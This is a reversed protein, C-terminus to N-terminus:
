RLSIERFTQYIIIINNYGCYYYILAFNRNINSKRTHVKCKGSTLKEFIQKGPHRSRGDVSKDYDTLVFDLTGDEGFAGWETNVITYSGLGTSRICGGVKSARDVYCCNSGQDVVLGIHTSPSEVLGNMMEACTDNFLLLPGIRVQATNLCEHLIAVVDQGVVDACDYEKTWRHLVAANIATQRIPFAITFVLPLGATRVGLHGAFHALCNTAQNFLNRGPGTKMKSPVPYTESCLLVDNTDSVTTLRTHIRSDTLDLSLYRSIAKPRVAGANTYPVYTDWCKVTKASPDSTRLGATVAKTMRKMVDILEDDSPEFKRGIEEAVLRKRFMEDKSLYRRQAALESFRAPVLKAMPWYCFKAMKLIATSM